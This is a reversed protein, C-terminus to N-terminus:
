YPACLLSFTVDITIANYKVSENHLDKQIQCTPTDTVRLVYLVDRRWISCHSNTFHQKQQEDQKSSPGPDNKTHM